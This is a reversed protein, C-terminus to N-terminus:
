RYSANAPTAIGIPAKYLKIIDLIEQDFTIGILGPQRPKIDGGAHGYKAKHGDTWEETLIGSVLPPFLPPPDAPDEVLPRLMKEIVLKTLARKILAPCSGDPEICGFVARVYQNKRGKRFLMRGARSPATFIDNTTDRNDILKIRPNGRDDRVDSYVRYYSKELAVESSNIRLEHVSIIPVGFHIADSDTGDFELIRDLPYFWQRCAREIFAQWMQISALIDADPYATEDSLGADRMDEVTVYLQSTNDSAAFLTGSDVLEWGDGEDLKLTWFLLTELDPLDETDVGAIVVDFIGGPGNTITIGSGVTKSFFAEAAPNVKFEMELDDGTIDAAVAGRKVSMTFTRAQGKTVILQTM